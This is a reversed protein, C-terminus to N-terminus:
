KNNLTQTQNQIGVESPRSDRVRPLGTNQEFQSLVPELHSVFLTAVTLDATTGPNIGEHKFETDAQMLRSQFEEPRDAKELGKLLEGAHLTTVVAKYLGFKREVHTDPYRALLSLYLGTIAWERNQWRELFQMFTPLAFDFIDQYGTAYQRAILDRDSAHSMIELLSATPKEFVDYKDSQGLGGPAAMQIARFMWDTDVKNSHTLVSNVREQLTASNRSHDLIALILPACLMLIGLNTNCGVSERTAKVAHFIREGLGFTSDTLPEVSADASAVFDVLNMGHGDAFRHVNGPKLAELESLCAQRYAQAIQRKLNEWFLQIVAM